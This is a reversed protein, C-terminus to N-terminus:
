GQSQANRSDAGARPLLRVYAFREDEGTFIGLVAFSSVKERTRAREELERQARTLPNYVSINPTVPAHLTESLAEAALITESTRSDSESKQLTTTASDM